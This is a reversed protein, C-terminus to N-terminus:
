TLIRPADCRIQQASLLQFKKVFLICCQRVMNAKPSPQKIEVLKNQHKLRRMLKDFDVVIKKIDCSDIGDEDKDVGLAGKIKQVGKKV